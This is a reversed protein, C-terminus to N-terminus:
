MQPTQGPARAAESLRLNRRWMTPTVGESHAFTAAFYGPNCFGCIESVDGVPLNSERLLEKAKALRRRKLETHAPRGLERLFLRDLTARSVGVTEALEVMSPPSSLRASLVELARRLVPSETALTDTSRRAWVRTCSVLVPAPPAAEGDMLRDLLAAAAYGNRELEDDVSSLPVPQNECLFADNGIGLIAIEEPVQIGLDMCLALLRTAEEDNYALVGVPKSLAGLRPGLAAAFSDPDDLRSRPILESLVFRAPKKGMGEALGDHFLQQVNSWETSFWAARKLGINAFHRAALRGAGVYDPVARPVAIDPRHMTLDVVPIGRRVLDEMFRVVATDRRLTVLAGDGAWGMPARVLRNSLTLRWGHERAFRMIGDFRQPIPPDVMLMVHRRFRRADHDTSKTTMM